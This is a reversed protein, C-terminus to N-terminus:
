RPGRPRSRRRRPRPVLLLDGGLLAAVQEGETRTGPLPAFGEEVGTAGADYDPDALVLPPAPGGPRVSERLLDQGSTLCTIEYTDVLQGSVTWAVPLMGFSAGSLAGDPAVLLRRIVMDDAAALVPDIALLRLQAAIRETGSGEFVPTEGREMALRDAELAAALDSACRDIEGAEALDVLRPPEGKLCL